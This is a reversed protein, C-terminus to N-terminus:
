RNREGDRSSPTEEESELQEPEKVEVQITGHSIDGPFSLTLHFSFMGPQIPVISIPLHRWFPDVLVSFCEDGEFVNKWDPKLIIQDDIFM